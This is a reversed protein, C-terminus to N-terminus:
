VFVESDENRMVLDGDNWGRGGDEGSVYSYEWGGGSVRPHAFNEGIIRSLMQRKVCVCM